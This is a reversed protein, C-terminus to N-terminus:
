PIGHLRRAGIKHFHFILAPFRNQAFGRSFGGIRKRIQRDSVIFDADPCGATRLVVLGGRPGLCQIKVSVILGATHILQEVAVGFVPDFPASACGSGHCNFGRVAPFRYGLDALAGELSVPIHLFNDQTFVDTGNRFICKVVARHQLRNGNRVADGGDSVRSKLSAPFQFLDINRRSNSRYRRIAECVAAGKRFNGETLVDQTDSFASEVTGCQGCDPNRVAHLGNALIRKRSGPFQRLNDDPLADNGDSFGSEIVKRLQLLHREGLPAHQFRKSFGAKRCDRGQLLDGKGFRHRIDTGAAEIATLRQFPHVNGRRNTMDPRIREVCGLKISIFFGVINIHVAPQNRDLILFKMLGNGLQIQLLPRDSDNVVAEILRRNQLRHLQRIGNPNDSLIGKRADFRQNAKFGAFIQLHKLFAREGVTGPKIHQQQVPRKLFDACVCKVTAGRQVIVRQVAVADNRLRDFADARISEHLRHQPSLRLVIDNIGSVPDNTERLVGFETRRLQLVTHDTNRVICKEM